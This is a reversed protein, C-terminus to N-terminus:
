KRKAVEDLNQSNANGNERGIQRALEAVKESEIQRYSTSRVNRFLFRARELHLRYTLTELNCDPSEIAFFFGDRPQCRLRDDIPSRPRSAVKRM